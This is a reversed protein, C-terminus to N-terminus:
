LMSLLKKIQHGINKMSASLAVQFLLKKWFCPGNVNFKLDGHSGNSSYRFFKLMPMSKNIQQGMDKMSACFIAQSLLKANLCSM